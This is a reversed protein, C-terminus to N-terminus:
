NAKLATLFYLKAEKKNGMSLWMRVQNIAFSKTM